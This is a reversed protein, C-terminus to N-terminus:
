SGEGMLITGYAFQLLVYSVDENIRFGKFEGRLTSHRVLGALGKALIIFLFPSLPDGQRFGRFAKFEKTLSGNM